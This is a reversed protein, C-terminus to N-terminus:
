TKKATCNSSWIM